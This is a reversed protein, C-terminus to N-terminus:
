RIWTAEHCPKGLVVPTQGRLIAQQATKAVKSASKSVSIIKLTEADLAVTSEPHQKMAAAAKRVLKTYYTM